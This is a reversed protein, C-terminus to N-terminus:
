EPEVLPSPIIEEYLNTKENWKIVIDSVPKGEKNIVVIAFIWRKKEDEYCSVKFGYPVKSRTIFGKKELEKLKRIIEQIRGDYSIQRWEAKDVAKEPFARNYTKLVWPKDLEKKNLMVLNGEVNALYFIPEGLDNKIVIKDIAGEIDTRKKILITELRGDRNIDAQYTNKGEIIQIINGEPGSVDKRKAVGFLTFAILGAVIIICTKCYM